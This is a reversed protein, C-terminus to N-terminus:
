GCIARTNRDAVDDCRNVAGVDQGHVLEDRGQAPDAAALGDVDGEAIASGNGRGQCRPLDCAVLRGSGALNRGGLDRGRPPLSRAKSHARPDTVAGTRAVAASATSTNGCGGRTKLRLFRDPPPTRRRSSRSETKLITRRDLVASAMSEHGRGGSTGGKAISARRASVRVIPASTSRASVLRWVMPGQMLIREDRPIVWLGGVLRHV